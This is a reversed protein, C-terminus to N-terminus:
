GSFWCCSVVSGVCTQEVACHHGHVLPTKAHSPPRQATWPAQAKKHNTIANVKRRIEFMHLRLCVSSFWSHLISSFYLLSINCAGLNQHQIGVQYCHAIEESEGLVESAREEVRERKEVGHRKMFHSRCGIWCTRKCRVKITGKNMSKTHSRWSANSHQSSMESANGCTKKSAEVGITKKMRDKMETRQRVIRVKPKEKRVDTSATAVTQKKFSRSSVSATSLTIASEIARGLNTLTQNKRERRTKKESVHSAETLQRHKWKKRGENIWTRNAARRNARRRNDNRQLM